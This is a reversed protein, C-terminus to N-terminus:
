TPSARSRCHALAERSNIRSADIGSLIRAWGPASQAQAVLLPLREMLEREREAHPRTELSDLTEAM